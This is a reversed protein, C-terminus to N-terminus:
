AGIAVKEKAGIAVEEQAGIAVEEQVGQTKWPNECFVIFKTTNEMPELLFVIRNAINEM